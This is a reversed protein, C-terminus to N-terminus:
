EEDSAAATSRIRAALDMHEKPALYSLCSIAHYLYASSSGFTKMCHTCPTSKTYAPIWEKCHVRAFHILMNAKTHTNHDCSPCHVTVGAYPNAVGKAPTADEPHITALHHLYTTKQLFKPCDECKTCEFPLDAAHNKKIHYYMTNQKETVKDCHPCVYHGAENKIYKTTATAPKSKSATVPSASM